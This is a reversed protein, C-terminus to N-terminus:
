SPNKIKVSFIKNKGGTECDSAMFTTQEHMDCISKRYNRNKHSSTQHLKAYNADGCAVKNNKNVNASYM